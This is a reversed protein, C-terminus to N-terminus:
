FLRVLYSAAIILVLLYVFLVVANRRPAGAVMGPPKPGTSGVSPAM